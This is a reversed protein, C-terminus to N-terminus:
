CGNQKTQNTGDLKETVSVSEKLFNFEEEKEQDAVM